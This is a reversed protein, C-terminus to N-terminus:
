YYDTSKTRLRPGPEAKIVQNWFVSIRCQPLMELSIYSKIISLCHEGICVMSKRYMNGHNERMQLVIFRHETRVDSSIMLDSSCVDSSWDRSFRTHRRRSSLF